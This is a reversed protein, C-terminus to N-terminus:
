LASEREKESPTSKSFLVQTIILSSSLLNCCSTDWFQNVKDGKFLTFQSLPRNQVCTGGQTLTDLKWAARYYFEWPCTQYDGVWHEGGQCDKQNLTMRPSWRGQFIVGEEARGHLDSKSWEEAKFIVGQHRKGQCCIDSCSQVRSSIFRLSLFWVNRWKWKM